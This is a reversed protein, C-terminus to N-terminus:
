FIRRLGVWGMTSGLGHGHRSYIFLLFLLCSGRLVVTNNESIQSWWQDFQGAALRGVSGGVSLWDTFHETHAVRCRLNGLGAFSQALFGDHWLALTPRCHKYCVYRSMFVIHM